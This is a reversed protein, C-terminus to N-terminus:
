AAEGSGLSATRHIPQLNWATATAPARPAVAVMTATTAAGDVASRLKARPTAMPTFVPQAAKLFAYDDKETQEQAKKPTPSSSSPTVIPSRAVTMGAEADAYQYENMQEGQLQLLQEHEAVIGQLLSDGM